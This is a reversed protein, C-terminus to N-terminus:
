VWHGPPLLKVDKFLTGDTFINQFTFYELLHVPSVQASLADHALLSKIESGFLLLPGSEAYYLPKVGFRDRALFLERRDRDWIALGFMGNFREVAAAGWQEYAALVVETDTHSRLRHGLRELEAQLERFNYLEGNYTIVLSGRASTMPMHGAPSPDIIALRRNVLGVPGDFFQGEDDPGRHAIVDGMRRLVQLPVPAGSRDLVGAIGCM